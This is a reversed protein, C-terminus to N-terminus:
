RGCGGSGRGVCSEGIELHELSKAVSVLEFFAAINWRSIPFWDLDRLSPACQARALATLIIAPLTALNETSDFLFLRRCAIFHVMTLGLPRSTSALASRACRLNPLLLILHALVRIPHGFMNSASYDVQREEGSEDLEMIPNGEEDKLNLYPVLDVDLRTPFVRLDPRYVLRGGTQRLALPLSPLALTRAFGIIAKETTLRLDRYLLPTCIAQM